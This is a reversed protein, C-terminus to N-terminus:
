RSKSRTEVRLFEDFQEYAETINREGADLLDQIAVFFRTSQEKQSFLTNKALM